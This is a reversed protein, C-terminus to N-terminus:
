VEYKKCGPIIRFNITFPAWHDSVFWHSPNGENKRTRLCVVPLHKHIVVQFKTICEWFIVLDLYFKPKKGPM